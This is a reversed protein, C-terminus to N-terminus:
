ELARLGGRERQSLALALRTGLTRRSKYAQAHISPACPELLPSPSFAPLAPDPTKKREGVLSTPICSSFASSVFSRVSNSGKDDDGDYEREEEPETLWVAVTESGGGRHVVSSHLM